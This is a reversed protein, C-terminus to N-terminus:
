SDKKSLQLDKLLMKKELSIEKKELDAFKKMTGQLLKQEAETQLFEGNMSGKVEEKKKNIEVEASMIKQKIGAQVLQRELTEITGAQDKLQEDMSSIQQQQQAYVSKRKAINEKNKIDTEALVAIDDVIGFQLLEKLEALYAWRNVPLTSGSIVRVDFRASSYDMSKGIAEGMDNFIPVNIEIEKQEQISNPQILRFRKNATYFAQTFQKVVEGVQRLGPELASTMWQKIRRTGYEDMALMGRYPMDGTTKTDGQMSSYIGALYEMDQKGEQVTTFFANSLQAPLVPQPPAAGPRIPLLAGPSSSYREWYDTDISGEEHIWRLSSGLSANHVMLQHSKNIERQKGILPSVASMPFPTGTWKYHFPILPYESITDPLLYEYLNKDGVTCCLQIVTKFFPVAEQVTKQFEENKIAEKFDKEVMIQNDTITKANIMEQLIQQHAQNLQEQMSMQAKELELNYREEILEGSELAKKLQAEQELLQVQMEKQMEKLQRDAEQKMQAIEEKSPEIRIFVNMYKMKKKEYTESLELMDENDGTEPDISEAETIDKPSFDKRYMGLSKESYSYIADNLSAAKSIKRASDPFLKKVHNRPLIKRIIIFGADRFLVDRSKPDVYIDFPDPQKIVVEGMGRDADKDVTVLLYGTSKTVADNVANSYITTGDSIHWVYDALDSFVSAVDSDSGEAGVAQWRPHNATAYYNLMEVVPIIRNITFDPMGQEQLSLREEESLQNDNSFDFGKQNIYEWQTRSATNATEFLKHIRQAKKDM